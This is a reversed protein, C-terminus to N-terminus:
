EKNGVEVWEDDIKAHAIDSADIYGIEIFEGQVEALRVQGKENDMLIAFWGNTLQVWTGKKLDDTSITKENTMKMMMKKKMLGRIIM